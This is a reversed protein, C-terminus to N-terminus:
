ITLPIFCRMNSYVEDIARWKMELSCEVSWLACWVFTASKFDYTETMLDSRITRGSQMIMELIDDNWIGIGELRHLHLEDGFHIM